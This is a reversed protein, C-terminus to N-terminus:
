CDEGPDYEEEEGLEQEGPEPTTVPSCVPSCVVEDVSAHNIFLASFWSGATTWETDARGTTVFGGADGWPARLPTVGSVLLYQLASACSDWADEPRGSFRDVVFDCGVVLEKTNGNVRVQQCDTFEMSLWPVTPVVTTGSTGSARFRPSLRYGGFPSRCCVADGSNFLSEAVTPGQPGQPGTSCQYGRRDYYVVVPTARITATLLITGRLTCKRPNCPDALRQPVERPVGVGEETVLPGSVEAPDSRWWGPVASASASAPPPPPFCRSLVEDSTPIHLVTRGVRDVASAHPFSDFPIPM